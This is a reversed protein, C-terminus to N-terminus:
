GGMAGGTRQWLVVRTSSKVPHHRKHGTGKHVIPGRNAVAAARRVFRLEAALGSIDLNYCFMIHMVHRMNKTENAM